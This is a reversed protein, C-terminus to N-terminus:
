QKTYGNFLKKLLDQIDDHVEQTQSVVLSLNSVYPQITGLGQGTDQWSDPQITNQILDILPQFDQLTVGGLPKQGVTAFTPQGMQPGRNDNYGDYTLAGFPNNPLNGGLQQAMALQSRPTQASVNQVNMSGGMAGVVRPQLFEMRMPNEPPAMPMVLDGIYYTKPDLNSQSAERTTVKIVENEVVFVLGKQQLIIELASQLSIPARIPVNVPSDTQVQGNIALEDFVINVGAQRSLQDVAEALTGRYEGQVQEGKLTNWIKQEAPSNFQRDNARRNRMDRRRTWDEANGMQM